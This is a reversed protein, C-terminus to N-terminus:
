AVKTAYVRFRRPTVRIPHVDALERLRDSQQEVDFGPADWPVLGIYAVLAQVDSFEMTGRWEDVVDVRLGFSELEAKFNAASVDPYAYQAGFWDHIEPDDHGDVQQTFFHGGPALVRAIEAANMGEHRNMIFDAVGSEFPMAMHQESDYARVDVGYSALAERARPINAGWGETASIVPVPCTYLQSADTSNAAHLRRLLTTLREGGGTGMDIVRSAARMQALCDADFDWCPDDCSLRGDLASFDWGVMVSDDYVRRLEDIFEDGLEDRM